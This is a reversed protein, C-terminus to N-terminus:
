CKEFYAIFGEHSVRLGAELFTKALEIGIEREDDGKVRFNLLRYLTYKCLFGENMEFVIRVEDGNSDVFKRLKLDFRYKDDYLDMKDEEFGLLKLEHKVLDQIIELKTLKEWDPNLEKNPIIEHKVVKGLYKSVKQRSGVQGRKKWKNNVLYAYRYKKGDRKGIEKVRIFAM